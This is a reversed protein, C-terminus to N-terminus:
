GRGGGCFESQVEHPHSASPARAEGGERAAGRGLGVCAPPAWAPWSEPNVVSKRHAACRLPQGAGRAALGFNHQHVRRDTCPTEKSWQGLGRCLPIKFSHVWESLTTCALDQSSPPSSTPASPPPPNPSPLPRRSNHPRDQHLPHRKNEEERYKRATSQSVATVNRRM